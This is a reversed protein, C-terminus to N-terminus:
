RNASDGTMSQNELYSYLQSLKSHVDLFYENDRLHRSYRWEIPDDKRLPIGLPEYSFQLGHFLTKREGVQQVLSRVAQAIICIKFPLEPQFRKVADPFYLKPYFTLHFMRKQLELFTNKWYEGEFDVEDDVNSPCKDGLLFKLLKPSSEVLAGGVSYDVMGVPMGEEERPFDIPRVTENQTRSEMVELLVQYYKKDHVFNSIINEGSKLNYPNDVGKKIGAKASKKLFLVDRLSEMDLGLIKVEGLLLEEDKRKVLSASDDKLIKSVHVAREHPQKKIMIA